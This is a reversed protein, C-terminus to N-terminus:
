LGHVLSLVVVGLPGFNSYYEAIADFKASTVGDASILGVGQSFRNIEINMDPKEPWVLRPVLSSFEIVFSRGRLYDFSDPYHLSFVAPFEILIMRGVFRQVSLEIGGRLRITELYEGTYLLRDEVSTEPTAINYTIHKYATLLPGIVVLGFFTAPVLVAWPLKRRAVAYGFFVMMLPVFVQGVQGTTLALTSILACTLLTVVMWKTRAFGRSSFWWYSVMVLLAYTATGFISVLFSITLPLRAALYLATFLGLPLYILTNLKLKTTDVTWRLEPLSRVISGVPLRFALYFGIAALLSLRCAQNLNYRGGHAHWHRDLGPMVWTYQDWYFVGLAGLGYRVFIWGSILPGVAVIPNEGIQRAAKRRDWFLAFSIVACAWSWAGDPIDRVTNPPMLLLALALVLVAAIKM